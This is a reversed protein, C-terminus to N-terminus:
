LAFIRVWVPPKEAMATLVYVMNFPLDESNCNNEWILKKYPNKNFILGVVCFIYLYFLFSSLFSFNFINSFIAIPFLLPYLGQIVSREIDQCPSLYDIFRIKMILINLILAVKRRQGLIIVWAFYKKQLAFIAISFCQLTKLIQWFYRNKFSKYWRFKLM